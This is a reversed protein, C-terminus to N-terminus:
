SLLLLLLLRRLFLFLGVVVARFFPTLFYFIFIFFCRPLSTLVLFLVALDTLLCLITDEM